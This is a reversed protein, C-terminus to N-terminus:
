RQRDHAGCGSAKALNAVVIGIPVQRLSSFHFNETANQFVFHRRTVKYLSNSGKLLHSVHLQPLPEQITAACGPMRTCATM